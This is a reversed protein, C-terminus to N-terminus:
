HTWTPGGLQRGADVLASLDVASVRFAASTWAPAALSARSKGSVTFTAEALFPDGHERPAWVVRYAYLGDAMPTSDLRDILTTCAGAQVLEPAGFRFLPKGDLAVYRELGALADATEGPCIWTRFELPEGPEVARGGLPLSMREISGSRAPETKARRELLPLSTRVAARAGRMPVPGAVTGGKPEPLVIEAEAGGYLNATRDRVFARLVYAGPRLGEIRREHLLIAPAEQGEGSRRSESIALMEWSKSRKDSLLAGVEWSGASKAELPLELLAEADLTVQVSLDWGREGASLPILAAALAVDHARGPVSLVARAARLWRESESLNVVRLSGPLVRGRVAVSVRYPRERAGEPPILGLRYVCTSRRGAEDTLRGLDSPGRNYGGGTYDALNAGLNIAWVNPSGSVAAYIATRSLTAESALRDILSNHDGLRKEDAQYYRAPFLTGNQHFLILAKRGPVPELVELLRRLAEFAHKSHGFELRAMDQRTGACDCARGRCCSEIEALRKSLLTPFPDVLDARRELTELAALLEAKDVTFDAPVVLGADSSYAALMVGDGPRMTERIWRRAEEGALARGDQRLQSYDFYLVFKIPEQVAGPLPARGDAAAPPAAAQRDFCLDDVSYVPQKKRDLRVTFDDKSLGRIPDGRENTVEIDVLMLSVRTTEVLRPTLPKEGREEAWSPDSRVLLGLALICIRPRGLMRQIRIIKVRDGQGADGM